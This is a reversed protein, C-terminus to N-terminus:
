KAVYGRRAIGALAKIAANVDRMTNFAGFSFRLAGCEVTGLLQHALPTCHLGGRVAIDYDSDLLFAAESTDINEINLAVVPVRPAGAAPLYLQIGRIEAAREAFANALGLTRGLIEERGEAQVFALGAALASIGATNVSGVELHDPYFEPQQWHESMSGTGGFILPKLRLHEAVYLGGVGAPGYLCKHGAFALLSINMKQVDIPLLGASQAADVLLPIKHKACVAGIKEIPSVCGLVNSAHVCVVLKTQPKIAAAFDEPDLQGHIDPKIISLEIGGQHQLYALPRWVANHELGSLIVHDGKQLLGFIAMNLSETAGATFVLREPLPCAFFEALQNRAALVMRSTALTLQYAGRGPNAGFLQPAEGLAKLVSPPKPWSGAANDLFIM